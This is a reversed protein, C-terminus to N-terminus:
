EQEVTISGTRIAEMREITEQDIRDGLVSFATEPLLTDAHPEYPLKLYRAVFLRVADTGIEGYELGAYITELEKCLFTDPDDEVGFAAALDKVPVRFAAEIDKFSYSGRIDGPDATGALEGETYVAPVKRSETYWLNLVMTGGIGVIFALFVIGTLVRSSIKM